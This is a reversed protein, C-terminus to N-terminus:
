SAKKRFIQVGFSSQRQYSKAEADWRYQTEPLFIDAVGVLEYNNRLYDAAWSMVFPDSRPQVLWSTAVDVFVIYEPRSGEVDHVMERQMQSAFAQQEMLEYTYIYPTASRRHAYFYIEPESGLVAISAGEATHSRIYDAIKPAEPFPNGGYITRSAVVPDLDFLLESQKAISYFFAILFVLVPIAVPAKNRNAETLYRVASSVAVGVLLSVAPLLVIFYHARFYLGPVVALFSFVLFEILFRAHSRAQDSWFLASLGVAALLWIAIFPGIVMASTDHFLHWGDSLSVISGYARAYSFTWFWFKHFAGAAALIACTLAFPLVVGAAYLGIRRGAAKWDVPERAEAQLLYLGGFLPFLIGPQKMIFALGLLIGSWFFLWKRQSDIAKLLLFIGGVAPLVVFHTAHGAFGLVAESTSLLAYSAAAVIGALSGFLRAALFFILITTAANVLILGFHIAAPSQGFIGLIAAYSAYTGPLKMNYALQYPPVGQLMLQGAYAYEGEDRELPMDRLRFRVIGFFVVVALVLAWYGYASFQRPGTSSHETTGRKTASPQPSRTRNPIKKETGSVATM